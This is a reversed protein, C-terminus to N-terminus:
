ASGKSARDGRLWRAVRERLSRTAVPADGNGAMPPLTTALVALPATAVDLLNLRAGTERQVRTTFTVALLSHGGVDFFNDSARVSPIGILECWLRALYAQRPDAHEEAPVDTTAAGPIAAPAATPAPLAKRDIKGNATKPLGALLEIHQPQMYTPLRERLLHRLRGAVEAPDGDVAAYLVLRLDNDGFRHAVVVCERVAPDAGAAAEVDGPEIRFGRIKIQHDVRGHFYLVGDRWAGLDGTRYMRGGGAHFPEPVFREATLGPEGLYGDAVGEGAIVIEGIVGPPVPQGRRDLVYIRTNDIPRGLPVVSVDRGIPMVTSWITTETPGYLNWLRRCRAALSRALAPPLAEGGVLLRLRAIVADQGTEEMLKLLSPTSQLVTCGSREILACLARPDRQDLATAIVMQGGAVLPLYLELGAIDFSLTTVACLVDEAGFGPDRQMARLFNVLNRHLIRVGKPQGTSGSTFLVYALDDGHVTPLEGGESPERALQAVPLLTAAQALAAPVADPPGCLISAVGAKGAMYRLREPPFEPDLPVYAAGSRLVGLVAVLMDVTRPVCVGVHDGRGLGRRGLAQAVARSAADLAAYDMAIGSGSVATRAPWRRMSAEILAVLSESRNLPRATDNWGELVRHREAEDMLSADGIAREPQAAGQRLIADLYGGWREVTAADFLDPNYHFLFDLRGDHENFHFEIDWNMHTKPLDTHTVAVGDWPTDATAPNFNFLVETMPLRGADRPLKLAQAIRALSVDQHEGADLLGGQVRKVLAGFSEAPDLAVRLPLTNDADGLTQGFRSAAQGAFPVGCVLDHQGSLRQLLAYFGGLLFAFLTVRQARASERVLRATQADLSGGFTAGLFGPIRPRPRDLPLALPDPLTHYQALWWDLSERGPAGARRAQEDLVFRRWADAPPWAPAHGRRFANYGQALERLFLSLSWGDMVIHHAVMVLVHRDAALTVRWARLLPPELRDFPRASEERVWADLAAEPDSATSLDRVELQVPAPPAFTQGSGDEAFRMAFIDHRAVVAGFARELAVVDLAGDFTIRTSENFAPAIADNYHMGLWRGMQADSLPVTTPLAEAVAAGASAAVAPAQVPEGAEGRPLLVGGALLDDVSETVAAVIREVEAEGHAVSLFCNFQEFLHLGAHRLRYYLLSACPQGGDVLLKWLSSYGVATIPARRAAFVANLCDIMSRTRANLGAQLQPGQAKIWRLAARAAALALPHRVFTGAFYTVGAEPYSDDGFRWFGGDLADMWRATGAIAAFPLGGGIIKGYTAIDARVGFAEQAGGPAMRFGTIVEDFILACGARDCLGRLSQLFAQPQLTPHKSQVPEVLVAALEHAREDIIRLAEDSGYDLVLVNEVASALIGPAAAISRLTRTGRVIVEDFIGHYSDRFVVITQRGTVTRAMRMAGMVAESGTNCFAVRPMGTLESILQAVEATLPHQPGIEMGTDLQAHLADVVFKPQYGLFNVGFGNLLDIYENGDVDWLRAGESREAVIPYTLEKWLPNFGTVVRPDAMLARHQQNFDRSGRTRATYDAVFRELWARQADSLEAHRDTVIRASAGFPRAVLNAPAADEDAAPAVPSAMPAAAAPAHAVAAGGQGALLRLLEAQQNLLATQSQILQALPTGDGAPLATTMPPPAAVSVPAPAAEPPLEADLLTALADVTDLDEMLRRFKLKLGFRREIELTAQTLALSDLGLDLFAAGDHSADLTEGTLQEFLTRLEAALRSRRAVAVPAPTPNPMIPAGQGPALPSPAATTAADPTIWYREGAFPYGPLRTKRRFQGAYVASWDPEIGACWCEGLAHLLHERADGPRSAPGLSPVARGRGDLMTRALSTLAQAPGVELLVAEGEGLVQAVADAFRVPQRLQRCWYDASVAEDAIIPAGSVSSHFPRTPAKRPVAELAIRFPALAGDMMASHFAHSVKLATSAVEHAALAEAYSTVEAQPGAVVVLSPGNVAALSVAEPLPVPLAALACRVALMAGPPQAQMAAGRAVVLAVADELAFVGARCAAVYEGISHGIMADAVVGWHEWLEALAYSVAFLAPQACRTQALQADATDGGDLILAALDLGLPVSALACCRAFADAFVPESAVLERAMGAHQSGQGSFLFVVPPRKAVRHPALQRLRTAATAGCDAVAFSRVAMPQRGLALTWGADALTVPDADVLADALAEGRRALAAEDRASVPLLVFPRADDRAAVGPAEELIVHANTGGVGFSSVGARRPADGSPWPTREAVVRFPGEAFPVEANPTRYHLTPPLEGHQLALAAKILGAVGSAANLHGLHGKLSGLWCSGSVPGDVAYARNLAAVEIPDGLPTATGHAEVYGISDPAVGACALAQTIADAQGRVSPATFSAKDAGDNNLGVGRIVAVIRDGDALADAVRKLVVVGAGASFVTGNAAADFPRCHGDDSEMGGEVPLYGAEQPAPVHVGGALAVDCQGSMLAHWAQAVAVLSTSCATQINLAPGTLDLRHAVRTALYDKENALMAAFEGVAQVLDARADVLRRYSNNSSGAYVGVPGGARAPDIGADELANWCLELFVRQQPDMLLAERAPVGFFAADFRDADAIVGRVPVYRPHGRLAAPVLPSLQGPTFRTLAERGTLLLEWLADISDAAPFRGAMGVIAVGAGDGPPRARRPSSAPAPSVERGETIRRALSQVTPHEYLDVARLTRHGRRRLETLARVVTLSRAGLDFVNADHPVEAVGLLQQWLAALQGALPVDEPWALPAQAAEAALARRDIKGSGTLPLAAHLVWAQPWQYAALEAEAHQRLSAVLAADAASADRPVVHAVLRQRGTEGAAVVVVEAVAPHRALVAEIGAPEIRYGDIKVQDDLRGLWTITGDREIRALDGTRYWRGDPREIFREATLGPQGIYGSALCDGGLLLEGEAGDPLPNLDADAVRLDVHPLATGISPLEPWNAPDGELTLATVVHAETPGYHNHLRAGPLARFLARIAPTVRLQEGATVVDCVHRPLEGGAAVAEALAQLAVYPLFLREVRDAVLRALLAYPDRREDEGPLVLMGGTALTALIEQVSVDFTPPAFQLTRAARGLVPHAVHWGILHAIVSGRMAVGKPQGSSGSTFLLYDLGAPGAPEPASAAAPLEGDGIRVAGPPLPLPPLRGSPDVLVRPRADALMTALRATPYGADLPMWTAGRQLCALLWAVTDPRHGAECAVVDGTSIGLRQLQAARAHVRRLLDAGDILRGRDLLVPAAVQRRLQADIAAAVDFRPMAARSM